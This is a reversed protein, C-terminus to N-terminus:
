RGMAKLARAVADQALKIKAQYTALDGETLAKNADNFATQAEALAKTAATNDPNKGTPPHAGGSRRVPQRAPTM